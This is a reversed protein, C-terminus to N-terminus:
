GGSGLISNITNTFGPTVPNPLEITYHYPNKGTKLVNFGQEIFQRVTASRYEGSALFRPPLKSM